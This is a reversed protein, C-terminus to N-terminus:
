TLRRIEITGSKRGARPYCLGHGVGGTETRAPYWSGDARFQPLNQKKNGSIKGSGTDEALKDGIGERFAIKKL